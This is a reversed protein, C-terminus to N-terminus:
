VGEGLDTTADEDNRFSVYNNIISEQQKIVNFLDSRVKVDINQGFQKNFLECARKRPALYSQLNLNVLENNSNTEADIMREKKEALNNVGIFTLFENWITQKYESLKDTVFPANTNLAQIKSIENMKSDGFIVPKNGDVQAYVNEMTLRQNEDTVILMPFKQSKINVDAAREAEYMRMAFLELTDATPMSDWDNKVLICHETDYIGNSIRKLEKENINAGYYVTRTKSIHHSWCNLQIPDNHYNIGGRKSARLNLFGVMEDYLLSATGDYYLCKELFEANMGDPLNVWEFISLAIKKFRNLYDFYTEENIYVHDKFNRRRPRINAM